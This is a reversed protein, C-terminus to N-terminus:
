ILVVWYTQFSSEAPKRELSWKEGVFFLLKSCFWSWHSEQSPPFQKVRCRALWTLLRARGPWYHNKSTNRCFFREWDSMFAISVGHDPGTYVTYCRKYRAIRNMKETKSNFKERYIHTNCLPSVLCFVFKGLITTCLPCQQVGPSQVNPSVPTYELSVTFIQVSAKTSYILLWNFRQFGKM